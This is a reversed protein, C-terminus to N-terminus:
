DEEIWVGRWARVYVRVRVKRAGGMVRWGQGYVCVAPAGAQCDLGIWDLGEGACPWLRTVTTLELSLAVWGDLPEFRM